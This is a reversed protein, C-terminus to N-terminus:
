SHGIQELFSMGPPVIRSKPNELKPLAMNERSIFLLLCIVLCKEKVGLSMMNISGKALANAAWSPDWSVSCPLIQATALVVQEVQILVGPSTSVYNCLMVSFAM